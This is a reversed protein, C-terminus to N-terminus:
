IFEINKIDERTEGDSLYNAINMLESKYENTHTVALTRRTRYEEPLRESDYDERIQRLVKRADPKGYRITGQHPNPVNTLDTMDPNIEAKDCEESFRGAGHRTLYTRTVYCVEVDIGQDEFIHEKRNDTDVTIESKEKGKAKIKTKTDLKGKEDPEEITM